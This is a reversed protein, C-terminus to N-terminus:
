GDPELSTPIEFQVDKLTDYGWVDGHINAVTVFGCINCVTFLKEGDFATDVDDERGPVDRLPGCRRCFVESM